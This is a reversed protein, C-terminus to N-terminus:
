SWLLTLMMRVNERSITLGSHRCKLHMWKYGHQSGSLSLENEIFSAVEVLNSEFKRRYLGYSNVLRKFHSNSLIIGHEHALFYLIEDYSLGMHFYFSIVRKREEM